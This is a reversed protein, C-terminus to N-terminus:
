AMFSTLGQQLDDRPGQLQVALRLRASTLRDPSSVAVSRLDSSSQQFSPWLGAVTIGQIGHASKRTVPPLKIDTESQDKFM